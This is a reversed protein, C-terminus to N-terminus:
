VFGHTKVDKLIRNQQQERLEGANTNVYVACSIMRLVRLGAQRAVVRAEMWLFFTVAFRFKVRSVRSTIYFIEKSMGTMDDHRKPTTRRVSVCLYVLSEIRTERRRFFYIYALVGAKQGQHKTHTHRKM